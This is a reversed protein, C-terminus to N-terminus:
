EIWTMALRDPRCAAIMSTMTQHGPSQEGNVVPGIQDQGRAAAAPKNTIKM